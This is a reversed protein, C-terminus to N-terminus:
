GFLLCTFGSDCVCQSRWHRKLSGGQAFCTFGSISEQRRGGFGGGDVGAWALAQERTAEVEIYVVSIMTSTIMKRMEPAAVMLLNFMAEVMHLQTAPPRHFTSLLAALISIRDQRPLNSPLTIVKLKETPTIPKVRPIQYYSHSM